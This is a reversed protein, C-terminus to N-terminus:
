SASDHIRMDYLVAFYASMLLSCPFPYNYCFVELLIFSYLLRLEVALGYGMLQLPWLVILGQRPPWLEAHRIQQINFMARPILVGHNSTRHTLIWHKVPDKQKEVLGRDM